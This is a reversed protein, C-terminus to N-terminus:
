RRTVAPMQITITAITRIRSRNIAEVEVVVLKTAYLSTIEQFNCLKIKKFIM